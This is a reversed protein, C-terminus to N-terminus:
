ISSLMLNDPKLELCKNTSILAKDLEGINKYISGLNMHTDPNNPDLELVKQTVPLAEHYKNQKILAVSINGWAAIFSNDLKIAIKFAKIAEMNDGNNLLCIGLNYPILKNNHKAINLKRYETIAEKLKGTNQHAQALLLSLEESPRIEAAKSLPKIAAAAKGQQILLLGAQTLCQLAKDIKGMAILSKGAYEWLLSNQPESQLLQQCARLCREHKGTTSLNQITKFNM